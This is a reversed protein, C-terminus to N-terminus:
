EQAPEALRRQQPGEKIQVALERPDALVLVVPGDGPQLYPRANITCMLKIHVIGPLVYALTKVSRTEVQVRSPCLARPHFVPSGTGM